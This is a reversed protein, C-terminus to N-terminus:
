YVLPIMTWRAAIKEAGFKAEYWKRTGHATLGLNVAVFVIASLITKNFMQGEPAAVIALSIYILCECTYHACVTYQFLGRTPLSYKKLSALHSHCKFQTVSVIIFMVSGTFVKLGPSHADNPKSWQDLISGSGEIWVAVSMSIYFSLGLAWHIIWMKSTSSRLVFLQEFLRRAGQLAMLAWAVKVAVLSQGMAESRSADQTSVIVRLIEGQFAFQYAWFASSALSIAYFAAFWSHPIQGWSTVTATINELWDSGAAAASQRSGGRAGYDLLLRRTRAPLVTLALVAAAALIFFTQVWQAPSLLQLVALGADYVGM